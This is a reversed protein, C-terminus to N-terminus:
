LLNARLALLDIKRQQNITQRCFAFLADGDIDGVAEEVGFLALENDGVARPVFLVRAVHDGTGAGGVKRHDQDIRALAHQDLGPPMRIQAVQDADFIDHQRDVLHVKDIVVLWRQRSRPRSGRM